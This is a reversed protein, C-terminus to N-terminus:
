PTRTSVTLPLRRTTSVGMTGSLPTRVLTISLQMDANIEIEDTWTEYFDKTVEVIARGPLIGAFTFAGGEDTFTHEGVSLQIRAGALPRPLPVVEGVLGKLTFTQPPPVIIVPPMTVLLHLSGSAGQYTARIDLEGSSVVTVLGAPSVTAFGANSSAWTSTSTVDRSTGDSLNGTATMQFSVASTSTSTVVVSSVTAGPLPAVPNSSTSGCAAAMVAVVILIILSTWYTPRDHTNQTM